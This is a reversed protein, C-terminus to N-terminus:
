PRGKNHSTRAWENAYDKANYMPYWLWDTFLTTTVNNETTVLSLENLQLLCKFNIFISNKTEINNITNIM